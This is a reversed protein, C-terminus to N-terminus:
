RACRLTRWEKDKGQGILFLAAVVAVGVTGIRRTWRNERELRELRQETTM